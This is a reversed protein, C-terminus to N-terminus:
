GRNIESLRHGIAFVPLLFGAILIILGVCEHTQKKELIIWFGLLLLLAASILMMNVPHIHM